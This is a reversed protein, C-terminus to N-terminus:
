SSVCCDVGCSRTIAPCNDRHGDRWGISGLSNQTHVIFSSALSPARILTIITHGACTILVDPRGSAPAMRMVKRAAVGRAPLALKSPPASRPSSSYLPLHFVVAVLRLCVFTEAVLKRVVQMTYTDISIIKVFLLDPFTQLSM